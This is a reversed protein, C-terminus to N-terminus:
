GSKTNFWDNRQFLAVVWVIFEAVADTTQKILDLFSPGSSM